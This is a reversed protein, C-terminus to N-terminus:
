QRHSHDLLDILTILHSHFSIHLVYDPKLYSHPQSMANQVSLTKGSLRHCQCAICHSGGVQNNTHVREREYGSALCETYGFKYVFLSSCARVTLVIARMDPDPFTTSTIVETELPMDWEYVLLDALVELMRTRCRQTRRRGWSSRRSLGVRELM